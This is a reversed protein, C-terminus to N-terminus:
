TQCISDISRYLLVVVIHQVHFFLAINKQFICHQEVGLINYPSGHVIITKCFLEPFFYKKNVSCKPLRKVLINVIKKHQNYFINKIFLLVKRLDRLEM